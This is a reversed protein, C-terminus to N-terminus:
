PQAEWWTQAFLDDLSDQIYERAAQIAPMKLERWCDADRFVRREIGPGWAEYCNDGERLSVVGEFQGGPTSPDDVTFVRNCYVRERITAFPATPPYTTKM